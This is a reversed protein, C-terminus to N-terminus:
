SQQAKREVLDRAATVNVAYAGLGERNSLESLIPRALNATVVHAVVNALLSAAIPSAKRILIQLIEANRVMEAAPFLRERCEMIDLGLQELDAQTLSLLDQAGFAGSAVLGPLKARRQQRAPQGDLEVVQFWKENRVIKEKM